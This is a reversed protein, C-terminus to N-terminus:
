VNKNKIVCNYYVINCIYNIYTEMFYQENCIVNNNYIRIYEINFNM